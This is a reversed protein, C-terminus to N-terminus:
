RLACARRICSLLGPECDSVDRGPLSTTLRRDGSSTACSSLLCSAQLGEVASLPESGSQGRSCQHVDYDEMSACEVMLKSM